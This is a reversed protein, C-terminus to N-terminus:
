GMRLHQRRAVVGLAEPAVAAHELPQRSPQDAGDTLAVPQHSGVEAIADSHDRAPAPDVRVSDIHVPSGEVRLDLRLFGTETVFPEGIVADLRDGLQAAAVVVGDVRVSVTAPDGTVSRLGTATVVYRGPPLFGPFSWILTWVDEGPRVVRDTHLPRTPQPVFFGAEFVNPDYAAPAFSAAAVASSVLLSGSLGAFAAVAYSARAPPRDARDRRRTRLLPLLSLGALGVVWIVKEPSWSRVGPALPVRGLVRWLDTPHVADIRSVLSGSTAM